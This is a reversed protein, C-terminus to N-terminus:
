LGGGRAQVRSRKAQWYFLQAGLNSLLVETNTLVVYCQLRFIKVRFLTLIHLKPELCGVSYFFVQIFKWISGSQGTVESYFRIEIWHIPIRISRSLKRISPHTEPYIRIFIRIGSPDLFLPRLNSDWYQPDLFLQIQIKQKMQKSIYRLAPGLKQGTKRYRRGTGQM